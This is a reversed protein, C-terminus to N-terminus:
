SRKARLQKNRRRLWDETSLSDPDKDIEPETADIKPAPAPAQSVRPAAAKPASLKAEIRGLELAQLREPLQMIQVAQERNNVLYLAVQPGLEMTQIIEQSVESIPLTHAELVKEVYEPNSEVFKSQRQEFTTLRESHQQKQDREALVREVEAATRASILKDQYEAVALDYRTQDYGNDELTPPKAPAPPEKQRQAQERELTRQRREENLQWTLHDIREQARDRKPAPDPQPTPAAGTETALSADAANADDAPNEVLAPSAGPTDTM